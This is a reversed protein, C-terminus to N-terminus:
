GRDTSYTEGFIEISKQWTQRTTRAVADVPGSLIFSGTYAHRNMRFGTVHRICDLNWPALACLVEPKHNESLFTGGADRIIDRVVSEEYNIQKESVFGGLIIYCSYPPFFREQVRQLTLAQTQSCYYSNYVGTANLGAGIGAQGIERLVSLETEFDSFEVWLLKFNAPAPALDYRADHFTHICPRGAAPEPLEAGGPWAHLKVVIETIIGTTGLSGRVLSLLDPGPGYEWFDDMGSVADSGTKLIDGAPTVLTISVINRSLTGYKHDTQWVGAIASQSSLKCVTTALPSGGNWLGYKMADAQVQAYDAYAELRATMTLANIELVRNMRSMHICVTPASTTPGNFGIQGNTFPIFPVTFRKCVRVVAQVEETSGPLVICAPINSPDKAHKKLTGASDISFKSYCEVVARDSSINERGVLNELAKYIGPALQAPVCKKIVAM